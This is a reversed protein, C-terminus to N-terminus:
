VLLGMFAGKMTMCELFYIMLHIRIIGMVKEAICCILWLCHIRHVFHVFRLTHLFDVYNLCKKRLTHAFSEEGDGTVSGM